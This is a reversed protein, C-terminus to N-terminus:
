ENLIVNIKGFYLEQIEKKKQLIAQCANILVNLFVQGWSHRIVSLKGMFPM